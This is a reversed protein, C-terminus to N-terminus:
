QFDDNRQKIFFNKNKLDKRNVLIGCKTCSLIEETSDVPMFIHECSEYDQNESQAEPNYTPLEKKQTLKKIILEIFYMKYNLDRHCFSM